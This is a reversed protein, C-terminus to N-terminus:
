LLDLLTNQEKKMKELRAMFRSKLSDGDAVFSLCQILKEAVDTTYSTKGGALASFKDRYMKMVGLVHEEQAPTATDGVGLKDSVALVLVGLLTSDFWSEVAQKTLRGGQSDEDLWNICAVVSLETDTIATAGAEYASRAIKDQADQLMNIIHPMLASIDDHENITGILPVSACVSVRGSVEKYLVKLLRQGDLAKSSKSDFSEFTHVSSITSM